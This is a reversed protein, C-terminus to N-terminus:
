NDKPNIVKIIFEKPDGLNCVRAGQSSGYGYWRKNDPRFMYGLLLQFSNQEALLDGTVTDHVSIKFSRIALLNTKGYLYHIVYRSPLVQNPRFQNDCGAMDVRNPNTVVSIFQGACSASIVKERPMEYALHVEAFRRPESLLRSVLITPYYQDEMVGSYPWYDIQIKNSASTKYIRQSASTCAIDFAKIKLDDFFFLCVLLIWLLPWPPKSFLRHLTQLVKKM